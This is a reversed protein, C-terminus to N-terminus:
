KKPDPPKVGAADLAKVAERAFGYDRCSTHQLARGPVEVNIMPRGRWLSYFAKAQKTGVKFTVARPAAAPTESTTTQQEEGLLMSFYDVIESRLSPIRWQM